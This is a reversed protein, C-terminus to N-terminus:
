FTSRHCSIDHACGSHSSNRLASACFNRYYEWSRHHDLPRCPLLSAQLRRRQPHQHFFFSDIQPIQGKKALVAARSSTRTTIESFTTACKLPLPNPQWSAALLLPTPQPLSVPQVPSTPSTADSPAAPDATAPAATAPVVEATSSTHLRPQSCNLWREAWAERRRRDRAHSWKSAPRGPKRSGAYSAKQLKKTGVHTNYL